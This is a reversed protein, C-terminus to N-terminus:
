EKPTVAIDLAQDEADADLLVFGGAEPYCGRWLASM